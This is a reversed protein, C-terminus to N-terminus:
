REDFLVAEGRRKRREQRQLVAEIQGLRRRKVKGERETMEWPFAECNKPPVSKGGSGPASREETTAANDNSSGRAREAAKRWFMKKVAALAPTVFSSSSSNYTLDREALAHSSLSSSSSSSSSSSAAKAASSLAVLEALRATAGAFDVRPADLSGRVDVCLMADEPVHSLRGASPLPLPLPLSPTSSSTSSPSSSSSSSSVGGSGSGGSGGVARRLTEAPIGLTLAIRRGEADVTGWTAFRASRAADPVILAAVSSSRSSSTENENRNRTKKEPPGVLVDIRRVGVTVGGRKSIKLDIEAPSTWAVLSPSSSLAAALPSSSGSGGGGFPFLRRRQGGGDENNNSEGGGGSGGGGGSVASVVSAAAAARDLWGLAKSAVTTGNKNKKLEVLLPEVRLTGRSLRPFLVSNRPSLTAALAPLTPDNGGAGGNGGGGVAVADALLPSLRSLCHKVLPPTLAARAAAPKRLVFVPTTAATATVETAAGQKRKKKEQKGGGRRKGGGSSPLLLWGDAAVAAKESRVEFAAPVAARGGRSSYSSSLLLAREAETTAEGGNGESGRRRRGRGGGSNNRWRSAWSADYPLSLPSSPSVGSLIGDNENEDDGDGNEEGGSEGEDGNRGSGSSSRGGSEKGRYTLMEAGESLLAEEGLLAVAHVSEGLAERLDLPVRARGEAVVLSFSASSSGNGNSSSSKRRGGSRGLSGRAEASFRLGAAPGLDPMQQKEAEAAAAEWPEFSLDSEDEEDSDEGDDDGGKLARALRSTRGDKTPFLDVFPRTVVVEFSRKTFAISALSRSASLADAAAVVSGSTETEPLLPPSSTSTSTSTSFSSSSSSVVEGTNRKRESGGEKAPEQGRDILKLGKVVPAKRWALSLSEVEIESSASLFLRKVLKLLLRTGLKSSLAAPAAAVAAAAFGM